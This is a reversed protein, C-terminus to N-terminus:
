ETARARVNDLKFGSSVTSTGTRQKDASYADEFQAIKEASASQQVPPEETATASARGFSRMANPARSLFRQLSGGKHLAAGAAGKLLNRATVGDLAASIGFLRYISQSGEEVDRLFLVVSGRQVLRLVRVFHACAGTV